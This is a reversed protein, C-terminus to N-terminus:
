AELGARLSRSAGAEVEVAAAGASGAAMSALVTITSNAGM